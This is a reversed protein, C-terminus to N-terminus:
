WMDGDLTFGSELWDPSEDEEENLIKNSEREWWLDVATESHPVVKAKQAESRYAYSYRWSYLLADCLHNSCSNHEVWRGKAKAREDWVLEGMELLLDSTGSELFKIHGNTLDSNLLEIFDKKGSKEANVLPLMYRQKLEEVSQKAAGDVVMTHFVYRDQLERIKSAVDSIIMKSKKYTEVVYLTPDYDTYACVVFATPDNYGLDLGLVYNWEDQHSPLATILNRNSYKYVRAETDIAWENRYMRRFGPTHEMDPNRKLMASIEKELKKAMFPNDLGSWKHTSWGAETGHMVDYFLSNTIDSTTSIMIIRGRDGYDMAAPRLIDYVLQRLNIRFFAAEDIVSTIYKGGLIKNMQGEDTDVGMLVIKAGNPLTMSLDSINFSAGLDYKRDIERLVNDFLINKAAARTLGMYLSVSRPNEYASKILALGAGFSKGSRRPCQAAILPSTDNIFDNQADFGDTYWNPQNVKKRKQVQELLKQAELKSM